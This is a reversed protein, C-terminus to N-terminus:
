SMLLSKSGEVTIFNRQLLCLRDWLLTMSHNKKVTTVEALQTM